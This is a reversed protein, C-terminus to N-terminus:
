TKLCSIEFIVKENTIPISETSLFPLTKFPYEEMNPYTIKLTTVILDESLTTGVTSTVTPTTLLPFNEFVRPYNTTATLAYLIKKFNPEPKITTLEDIIYDETVVKLDPIIQDTITHIPLLESGIDDIVEPIVKENNISVEHEQREEVLKDNNNKITQNIDFELKLVSEEIPGLDNRISYVINSSTLEMQETTTLLM